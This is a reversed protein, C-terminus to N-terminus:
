ATKGQDRVDNAMKAAHGLRMWRALCGALKHAQLRELAPIAAGVGAEGFSGSQGPLM